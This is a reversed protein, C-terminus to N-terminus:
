IVDALEQLLRRKPRAGVLSKVPEGGHFVMLTPMSLVGYTAATMPNEDVDLQVIKLRDAEEGAIQALVPAIMRCPPCWSATFDVLVPLRAALVEEAFTADTVTAM